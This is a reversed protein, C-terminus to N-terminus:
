GYLKRESRRAVRASIIRTKELRLTSVVAMLVGRVAGVTVYRYEGAHQASRYTFRRSDLFVDKADSFDIGHKEINLRRKNEDWEFAQGLALLRAKRQDAM